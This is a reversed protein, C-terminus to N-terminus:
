LTWRSLSGRRMASSGMAVYYTINGVVTAGRQVDPGNSGGHLGRAARSLYLPVVVGVARPSEM